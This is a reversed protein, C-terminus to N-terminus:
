QAPEWRCTAGGFPSATVVKKMGSLVTGAPSSDGAVCARAGGMDAGIKPDPSNLTTNASPPPKSPGAPTPTVSAMEIPTRDLLEDIRKQFEKGDWGLVVYQNDISVIKWQGISDGPHYGRQAAGPKEALVVTPPTGDWLMIGRAVPFPPTLKPPPPKEPDLIVNANRDKSFLNNEAVVAFTVADFPAVKPLPSLPPPAVVKPQYRYLAQERANERRWERRLQWGLLWLVALLGLNAAILKRTL